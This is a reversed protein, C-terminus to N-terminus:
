KGLKSPIKIFSECFIWYISFNICIIFVIVKSMDEWM